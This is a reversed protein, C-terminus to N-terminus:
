KAKKAEKKFRKYLARACKPDLRITGQVKDQVITMQGDPLKELRSRYNDSEQYTQEATAMQKAIKRLKRCLKTNM